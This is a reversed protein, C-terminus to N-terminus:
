RLVRGLCFAIADWELVRAQFIGHASSGPPSCDMPDRLCAPRHHQGTLRDGKPFLSTLAVKIISFATQSYQSFFKTLARLTFFYAFVMIVKVLTSIRAWQRRM